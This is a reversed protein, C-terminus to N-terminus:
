PLGSPLDALKPKNKNHVVFIAFQTAARLAERESQPYSLLEAEVDKQLESLAYSSSTLSDCTHTSSTTRTSYLKEPTMLRTRM